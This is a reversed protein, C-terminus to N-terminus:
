HQLSLVNERGYVLIASDTTASILNPGNNLTVSGSATANRQSGNVLSFLMNSGSQYRDNFSTKFVSGVGIWSIDITATGDIGTQNGSNLDFVSGSIPIAGLVRAQALGASSRFNITSNTFGSWYTFTNGCNDFQYYFIYMVDTTTNSGAQQSDFEGPNATLQTYVCGDSSNTSWTASAVFANGNFHNATAAGTNDICTACAAMFIAASLARMQYKSKNNSTGIKM